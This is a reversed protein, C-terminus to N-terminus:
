VRRTLWITPSGGRRTDAQGDDDTDYEFNLQSWGTEYLGRFRDAQEQYAENLRTAMADFVFALTLDRHVQRLASPQLILNPRNQGNLLRLQIEAWAEDLYDQFDADSTLPAAGAPDLAPVRRFLDADTVVPYLLHRVHAADNRFVHVEGALTLSWEVRWGVDLDLTTAPTYTYTAVNSVLSAPAGDVQATDSSDYISVTAATPHVKAGASYVPCSLTNARGRVILDPGLLRASYHTTTAGAM